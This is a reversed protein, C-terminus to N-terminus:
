GFDHSPVKVLNDYPMYCFTSKTEAKALTIVKTHKCLQLLCLRVM